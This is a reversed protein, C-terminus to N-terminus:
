RCKRTGRQNRCKTSPIKVKNIRNTHFQFKRKKANICFSPVRAYVFSLTSNEGNQQPPSTCSDVNVFPAPYTNPIVRSEHLISPLTTSAIRQKRKSVFHPSKIKFKNPKKKHSISSKLHSIFIELRSIYIFYLVNAMFHGSM